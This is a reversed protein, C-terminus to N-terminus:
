GRLSRREARNVIDVISRETQRKEHISVDNANSEYKKIVRLGRDLYETLGIRRQCPILEMLERGAATYAFVGFDFFQEYSRALPTERCICTVPYRVEQGGFDIMVFAGNEDDEYVMYPKGDYFAEQPDRPYADFRIRNEIERIVGIDRLREVSEVDLGVISLLEEDKLLVVPCAVPNMSTPTISRLREMAEIDSGDMRAICNLAGLSLSTADAAKVDACEALLVRKWESFAEKSCEVFRSMWEEEIDGAPASDPISTKEIVACLNEFGKVDQLAAFAIARMEDDSPQIGISELAAKSLAMKKEAAKVQQKAKHVAWWGGTAQDLKDIFAAGGSLAAGIENGSPIGNEDM